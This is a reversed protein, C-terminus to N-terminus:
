ATLLEEATIIRSFYSSAQLERSPLSRTVLVKQVTRNGVFPTRSLKQEMDAIVDRGIPGNRYKLECVTLVRDARDFVLDLQVGELVGRRGQQFWPGASYQIGSFGLIKAIKERHQLCLLEFSRGLWSLFRASPLIVNTFYHERYDGKRKYARLFEFYFRMFPDGIMYRVLPSRRGRDFPSCAAIFGASELNELNRTLEGGAPLNLQDQIEARSLGSPKADLLEIIRSYHESAGFHSVFIREFEENFYGDKSFVQTDMGLAISPQENLINLYEPIGGVLLQALLVDEPARTELLQRTDSLLFPQLHIALRTRGYLAKSKLVKGEMFSAISGCLVLTIKAAAKILYQEWVMKLDSVLESRYNAMWQLEDLLIVVTKGRVLPILEVFAERWQSIKAREPPRGSQQELQFLFNRLQASKPQEELGEFSLMFEGAFAHNVLETKGVRRRGYIVAIRSDRQEHLERLARLEAQRGIFPTGPPSPM